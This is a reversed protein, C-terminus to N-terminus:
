VAFLDIRKPGWSVASPSQEITHGDSLDEWKVGQWGDNEYVRQYLHDDTGRVFVDLRGEKWSSVAPAGKVKIGINEVKWNSWSM